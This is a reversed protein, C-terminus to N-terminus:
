IYIYKRLHLPKNVQINSRGPLTSDIFSLKFPKRKEKEENNVSKM